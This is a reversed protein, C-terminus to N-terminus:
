SPAPSLGAILGAALARGTEIPAVSRALKSGLLAGDYILQIQTATEDAPTEAADSGHVRRLLNAITARVWERHARVPEFDVGPFETAANAYLCGAFNRRHAAAIALDFFALVRAAPDDTDAVAASWRNRDAQDLDDLYAIVLAEKSGYSSYLSAKAVGAERLIQDIGVQRIGQAAFLKAAAKLLRQAPVAGQIRRSAGTRGVTRTSTM